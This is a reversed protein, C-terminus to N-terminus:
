QIFKDNVKNLSEILKDIDEFTNYFYFSVRSVGGPIGLKTMLPMVCSHGARVAIKDENLIEVVDHPHIKNLTFSIIGISKDIGPNYIKIGSIAKIKKTAYKMLETEWKAINEIGIKNLYKIAEAFGIAGSINQTGAEFKSPVDAWEAYTYSVKKIMGGGFNFPPLSKLMGKKGYLIGIGTPGLMKHSSFALFDCNLEKIDIKIHPVSQAADVITIAGKKNGLDILEKIPNITGLVNSVHIVSVIATKNTIKKKADEMDLTFDKKMKIFRLVMKNRDALQQWPILNSHHEMETLIIEKRGRKLLTPLTYSLLNLSETTNKTFVVEEKEANIFEAVIKRAEEYKEMAKNALAYLGRHVNANEKESFNTVAKIVQKPRQSTAANDLYVLGKNNDFIPFDKKLKKAKRNTIKM